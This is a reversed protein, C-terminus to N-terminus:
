CKKLRLTFTFNVTGATWGNTSLLLRGTKSAADNQLDGFQWYSFEQADYMAMALSNPTGEWYLLANMPNPVSWQGKSIAFQNQNVGIPDFNGSAPDAIVTGALDSTDLTAAVKIERWRPGDELVTIVVNNAM